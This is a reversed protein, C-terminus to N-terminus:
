EEPPPEPEVPPEHEIVPQIREEIDKDLGRDELLEKIKSIKDINEQHKNVEDLKNKKDQKPKKKLRKSIDGKTEAGSGRDETTLQILDGPRKFREIITKFGEPVVIEGILKKAKDYAKVFVSDEFVSVEDKKEDSEVSWWTGRVGAVASPTNVEFTLGAKVEEVNAYIKGHSLDFRNMGGSQTSNFILLTNEEIRIFNKKEDDLVIDAKSRRATRISDGIDIRTGIKARKWVNEAAFQVQVAGETYSIEAAQIPIFANGVFLLALFGILICYKKM